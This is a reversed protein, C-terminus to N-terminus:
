MRVGLEEAVESKETEICAESGRERDSTHYDANSSSVVPVQPAEAAADTDTDNQRRRKARPNLIVTCIVVVGDLVIVAIYTISAVVDFEKKFILSLLSFFAGSIDIAMFLLSIGVVEKLRWIEIYQPILGVSILVAAFIGFFQLLRPNGAARVVFVMGSEFGAFVAVYGFLIALCSVLSWKQGYYMCQTWSVASLLGFLQPQIILPINLDQVIAYVGLFIASIAWAAMLLASLGETSKERWSKWIQPIIQGTWLITGITGLVNEAAHNYM